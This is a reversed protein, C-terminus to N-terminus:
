KKPTAPALETPREGIAADSAAAGTVPTRDMGFFAILCGVGAFVAGFWFAISFGHTLADAMTSPAQAHSGIFRATASVALSSLIAVGLAGGIQQTTTILGSAVGAESPAVGSV